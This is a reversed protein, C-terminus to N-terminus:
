LYNTDIVLDIDLLEADREQETEYVWYSYRGDPSFFEIIPTAVDKKLSFDYQPAYRTVLNLNIRGENKDNMSKIFM